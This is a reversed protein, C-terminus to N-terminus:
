PEDGPYDLELGLEDPRDAYVLGLRRRRDRRRRRRDGVTRYLRDGYASWRVVSIAPQRADADELSATLPCLAELRVPAGPSPLGLSNASISRSSGATLSLQATRTWSGTRGVYISVSCTSDDLNQFSVKGYWPGVSNIQDGNPVWPFYFRQLGDPGGASVPSGTAFLMLVLMGFVAALIVARRRLSPFLM